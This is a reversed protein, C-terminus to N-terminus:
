PENIHMLHYKEMQDKIKLYKEVSKTLKSSIEADEDISDL